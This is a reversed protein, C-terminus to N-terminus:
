KGTAVLKRSIITGFCKPRTKMTQGEILYMGVIWPYKIHKIIQGNSKIQMNDINKNGCEAFVFM